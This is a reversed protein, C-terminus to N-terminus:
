SFCLWEGLAKLIDLKADDCHSRLIHTIESYESMHDVLNRAEDEGLVFGRGVDYGSELTKKILRELILPMVPVM